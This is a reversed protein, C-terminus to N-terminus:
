AFEPWGNVVTEEEASNLNIGGGTKLTRTVIFRASQLRGMRASVAQAGHNVPDLWQELADGEVVAPVRDSYPSMMPGPSASLLTCARLEEDSSKSRWVDYLAPIGFPAGSDPRVRFLGDGKKGPVRLLFGSCPVVGRQRRIIRRFSRKDLFSDIDAWVSEPAWFPMLGWRFEDLCRRSGKVVIVPLSGTPRIEQQRASYLLVQDIRFREVLEDTSSVTYISDLMGLM